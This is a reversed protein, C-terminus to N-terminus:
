HRERRVRSRRADAQNAVSSKRLCRMLEIALNQDLYGVRERAREYGTTRTHATGGFVVIQRMNDPRLVLVRYRKALEHVLLQVTASPARLFRRATGTELCLGDVLELAARYAPSLPKRFAEHPVVDLVTLVSSRRALQIAKVTAESQPGELLAYGSVVLLDASRVVRKADSGLQFQTNAGRHSVMARHERLHPMPPQVILVKGTTEGRVNRGVFHLGQKQIFKLAFRGFADDGVAALLTTKAGARQFATAMTLGSGGVQERITHRGHLRLAAIPQATPASVILDINVDGIVAVSPQGSHFSLLIVWKAICGTM